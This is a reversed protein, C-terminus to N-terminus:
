KQFIFKGFDIMSDLANDSILKFALNVSKEIAADTM